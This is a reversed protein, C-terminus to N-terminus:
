NRSAGKQVEEADEDLHAEIQYSRAFDEITTSGRVQGQRIRRLAASEADELLEGVLDDDCALNTESRSNGQKPCAETRKTVLKRAMSPVTYGAGIQLYTRNVKVVSGDWIADWKTGRSSQETTPSEILAYSRLETAPDDIALFGRERGIIPGFSSQKDTSSKVSWRDM